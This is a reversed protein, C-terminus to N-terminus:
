FGIKHRAADHAAADRFPVQAEIGVTNSEALRHCPALAERWRARFVAPALISPRAERTRSMEDGGPHYLFEDISPRVRYPQVPCIQLAGGLHQALSLDM